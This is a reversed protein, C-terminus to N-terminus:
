FERAKKTKDQKIKKSFVCMRPILSCMLMGILVLNDSTM